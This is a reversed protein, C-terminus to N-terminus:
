PRLFIATLHNSVVEGLLPVQRVPRYLRSPPHLELSEIRLGAAAAANRLRRMTLHNLHFLEDLGRGTRPKRLGPTAADFELWAKAVLTGPLLLHAWPFTIYDYTHGGLRSRWHVASAHFRGGRRLVRKVERLSAELRSLHELVDNSVILEFEEDSFPQEAADALRFDVGPALRRAWSIRDADIDIGTVSAGLEAYRRAAGGYGCGLDLM